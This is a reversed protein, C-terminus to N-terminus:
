GPGHPVDDLATETLGAPLSAHKVLAKVASEVLHVTYLGHNKQWFQWLLDADALARHRGKPTLNFRAILADLGHREVSPFLSRSLRLTCLV